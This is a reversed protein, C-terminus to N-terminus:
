RSSSLDQALWLRLRLGIGTTYGMTASAIQGRPDIVFSTPVGRVKWRRALDGNEDLLVPFDLQNEKLFRGIEVKGGSSTAVTLVAFDEALSDISGQEARCIPCWSAWFHVLVPKGQYGQLDVKQGDLLVGGLAPAPGEALDRTQWWHVGFFLAAILLIDRAWHLWSRKNRDAPM